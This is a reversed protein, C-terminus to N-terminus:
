ISVCNKSKDEKQKIDERSYRKVEEVPEAPLGNVNEVLLTGKEEEQIEKLKKMAM